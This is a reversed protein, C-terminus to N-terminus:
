TIAENSLAAQIDKMAEELGHGAFAAFWITQRDNGSMKFRVQRRASQASVACNIRAALKTTVIPRVWGCQGQLKRGGGFFFIAQGFLSGHPMAMFAFDSVSLAAASYISIAGAWLQLLSLRTSAARDCFIM